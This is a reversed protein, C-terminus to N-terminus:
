LVYGMHTSGWCLVVPYRYTSAKIYLRPCSEFSIPPCPCWYSPACTPDSLLFYGLFCHISALWGTILYVCVNIYYAHSSEFNRDHGFFYRSSLCCVSLRAWSKSVDGCSIVLCILSLQTNSYMHLSHVPCDPWTFKNRMRCGLWKCFHM